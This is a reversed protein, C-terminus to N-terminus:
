TIAPPFPRALNAAKNLPSSTLLVPKVKQSIQDSVFLRLKLFWIRSLDFGKKDIKTDRSSGPASCVLLEEESCVAEWGCSSDSTFDCDHGYGKPQEYVFNRKILFSYTTSLTSSSSPIPSLSLISKSCSLSSKCHLSLDFNFSFIISFHGFTLHSTYYFLFM